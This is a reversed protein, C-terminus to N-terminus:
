GVIGYLISFLVPTTFLLSDLLDLAGGVGPIKNSDKMNADRKLFSEFLDGLQSLVALVIGLILAKQYSLVFGEVPFRDTFYAFALSCILAGLFGAVAGEYTKKPSIKPCLPRRGFLRGALYAAIDTIKTVAVLYFFWWSGQFYPSYLLFFVLSIPFVIYFFPFCALAFYAIGGEQKKRRLYFLALLYLLALDGLFAANVKGTACLYSGVISVFGFSFLLRRSLHVEKKRVFEGYEYLSVLGLATLFALVFLRGLPTDSVFFFIALIMTATFTVYIRKGFEKM